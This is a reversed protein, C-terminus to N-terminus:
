YTPSFSMRQLYCMVICARKKIAWIQSALNREEEGFARGYVGLMQTSSWGAWEQIM